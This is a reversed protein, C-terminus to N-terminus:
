RVGKIELTVFRVKCEKAAQQKQQYNIGFSPHNKSCSSDPRVVTYHLFAEDQASSVAFRLMSPKWEVSEEVVKKVRVRSKAPKRVPPKSPAKVVESLNIATVQETVISSRTIFLKQMRSISTESTSSQIATLLVYVMVVLVLALFTKLYNTWTALAQPAEAESANSPSNVAM